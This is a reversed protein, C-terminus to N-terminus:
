VWIGRVNRRKFDALMEGEPKLKMYTYLLCFWVCSLRGWGKAPTISLPVLRQGLLESKLPRIETAERHSEFGCLAIDRLTNLWDALCPWGDVPMDM